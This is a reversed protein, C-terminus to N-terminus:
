SSVLYQRIPLNKLSYFKNQLELKISAHPFTAGIPTPYYLTADSFAFVVSTGFMISTANSFTALFNRESSILICLAKLRNSLTM